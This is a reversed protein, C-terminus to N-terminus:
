SGAPRENEVSAGRGSEYASLLRNALELDSPRDVDVAAEAMPLRVVEIRAGIAASARALADDLGLRRLLFLLLALPGFAAVLRWPRKRFSEARVWFAAARRAARTRFGFLNAGSYREDRFRLYTRPLDPFREALHAREVLGVLLDAPSGACADLFFDLMAPTLLAHDATTVLVPEADLAALADAVSRSPSDLCRRVEVRGERLLQALEPVRSPAEPDDISVVIRSVRPVARLTRVVRLLMPVGAVPLLARHSVGAARALPDGEGRSGALVIAAFSEV